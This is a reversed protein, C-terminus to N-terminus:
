LNHHKNKKVGLGIQYLGFALILVVIGLVLIIESGNM